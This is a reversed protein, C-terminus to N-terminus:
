KFIQDYLQTYGMLPKNDRLTDIIVKQILAITEKIVKHQDLILKRTRNDKESLKGVFASLEITRM